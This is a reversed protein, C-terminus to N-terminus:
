YEQSQEVVRFKLRNIREFPILYEKVTVPVTRELVSRNEIRSITRIGEGDNCTVEVAVSGNVHLVDRKVRSVKPLVRWLM